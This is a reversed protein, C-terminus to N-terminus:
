LCCKKYKKGSGCPCPENRGIKPESVAPVATVNGIVYATENVFYRFVRNGSELVTMNVPQREFAYKMEADPLYVAHILGFRVMVTAVAHLFVDNSTNLLIGSDKHTQWEHRVNHEKGVPWSALVSATARRWAQIDEPRGGENVEELIGWALKNWLTDLLLVAQEQESLALYTALRQKNVKLQTGEETIGLVLAVYFFFQYVPEQDQNLTPKRFLQLNLQEDFAKWFKRPMHKRAASLKIDKSNQVAELYANFEAVIPPVPTRGDMWLQLLKPDVVLPQLKQKKSSKKESSLLESIDNSNFWRELAYDSSAKMYQDFREIFYAKHKCVENLEAFQDKSIRATQLLYQVWRKMSTLNASIDSETSNLIHSISFRGLFDVFTEGQLDEYSIEYRVFYETTVFSIRDVHKQITEAKLKGEETLYAQFAIMENEWFLLQEEWTLKEITKM